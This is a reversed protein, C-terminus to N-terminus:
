GRKSLRYPEGSVLIAMWNMEVCHVLAELAPLQSHLLVLREGEQGEGEEGGELESPCHYSRELLAVGVQPLWDSRLIILFLYFHLYSCSTHVQLAEQSLYFGTGLHAM